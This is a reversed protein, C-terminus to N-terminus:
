YDGDSLIEAMPKDVPIEALQYRYMQYPRLGVNILAKDMLDRAHMEDYALVISSVRNGTEFTDHDTCSWLRLKQEPAIAEEERIRKSKAM